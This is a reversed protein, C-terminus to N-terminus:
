SNPKLRYIKDDGDAPRGRGDRNNTMMFLSGDPGEYVNRIRGWEQFLPEVDDVVRGQERFLLKLVQNGRLNAVLLQGKWPGQSVFTMGSPAWTEEGSHILPSKLGAQKEDGEILPWGYNAGPEILNIEDHASQGHESAYLQGTDPHWALGQPNRHGYSYVPSDPIPNDAPISGDLGIRLIKGGLSQEKQALEPEYRDGATIYLYGDPDIKMRGGNHNQAGALGDLIVHDISAKNNREKLRLVRNQIEGNTEYTHYVYIYHNEAFQPDLVLGLLGGEGGSRFPEEMEIVPDPLLAGDVMVRVTGPRETFFIRGDEAVDMEWPVNLGEALTEVTYPIDTKGTEKSTCATTIFLM